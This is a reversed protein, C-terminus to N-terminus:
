VSANRHTHPQSSNAATYEVHSFILEKWKEMLLEMARFSQPTFSEGQMSFKM